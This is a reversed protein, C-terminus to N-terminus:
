TLTPMRWQQSGVFIVGTANNLPEIFKKSNAEKLDATHLLTVNAIGTQKKINNVDAVDAAAKDGTATTVVVVVAKDKGGALQTFKNWIAKNNGEDGGTILLSGKEPGHKTPSRNIKIAPYVNIPTLVKKAPTQQAWAFSMAQTLLLSMLIYKKM